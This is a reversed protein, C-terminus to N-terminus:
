FSASLSGAPASGVESANYAIVWWYRTGSLGTDTYARDVLAGGFATYIAVTDDDEIDDVDGRYLVTKFVNASNPHTWSLTASSVGADLAFGTPAGPAVTDATATEVIYSTWESVASGSITRLRFRYETGAVLFPTRVESQGPTSTVSAPPASLDTPEYQLEYQVTADLPTFVARAQAGTAGGAVQGLVIFVDFGTPVALPQTEETDPVPPPTGEEVSADFTYLDAPVVIADFSITMDELNLKTGNVIEVTAENLDRDPRNILVFRSELLDALTEDYAVTASIRPANARIMRLKQLRQMHNHSQVVTSDITATRQTEDEGSYPDGWLAADAPNYDNAPDVYRGRVALVTSTLSANVDYRFTLFDDDTLRIAPVTMEGAHVGILGDGREYVVLEAAEDIMKGISVADQGDGRYKWTIFGAYRPEPVGERNVVVQDCVDAAHSWDPLYLDAIRLRGGAPHILHFLRILALNRSFVWTSKDDPDQAEDRPDYLLAGDIVATPLPRGQTYVNGFQENTTPGYSYGAYALGDGRMDATWFDWLGTFIATNADAGLRMFISIANGFHAPASVTDAGYIGGLTVPEDHMYHQVYGEIRHAAHVYIEYLRGDKTELLALDGGVKGRGCVVRLPPIAQRENFSGDPPKPDNRRQQQPGQKPFLLMTAVTLAASIALSIGVSILLAVM